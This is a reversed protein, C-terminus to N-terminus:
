AESRASGGTSAGTKRGLADTGNYVAELPTLTMHFYQSKFVGLPDLVHSVLMGVASRDSIRTKTLAFWWVNAYKTLIARASKDRCSVCLIMFVM